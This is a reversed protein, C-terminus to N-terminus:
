RGHMKCIWIHAAIRRPSRFIEAQARVPKPFDNANMIGSRKLESEFSITTVGRLRSPVCVAARRSFAPILETEIEPFFSVSSVAFTHVEFSEQLSERIDMTESPLSYLSSQVTKNYDIGLNEHLRSAVELTEPVVPWEGSVEEGEDKVLCMANAGPSCETGVVFVKRVETIEEGATRM